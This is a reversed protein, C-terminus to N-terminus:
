LMTSLINFAPHQKMQSNNPGHAATDLIFRDNEDDFQQLLAAFNGDQQGLREALYRLAAPSPTIRNHEVASLYSKSFREGAVDKQTLHRLKRIKRIIDGVPQQM